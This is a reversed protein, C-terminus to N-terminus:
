MMVVGLKSAVWSWQGDWKHSESKANFVLLSPVICDCIGQASDCQLQVWSAHLRDQVTVMPIVPLASAWSRATFSASSSICLYTPSVAIRALAVWALTFKCTVSQTVVLCSSGISLVMILHIELQFTCSRFCRSPPPAFVLFSFSDKLLPLLQHDVLSDEVMAVCWCTLQFFNQLEYDRCSMQTATMFPHWGSAPSCSWCPVRYKSCSWNQHGLIAACICFTILLQPHHVWCSPVQVLAGTCGM